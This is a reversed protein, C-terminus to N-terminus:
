SRSRGGSAPAGAILEAFEARDLRGNHDLDALEFRREVLPDLAAEQHSIFGDGNADIRTFREEVQPPLALAGTMAIALTWIMARACAIFTGRVDHM